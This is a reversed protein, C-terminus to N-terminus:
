SSAIEKPPAPSYGQAAMLNKMAVHPDQDKMYDLLFTRLCEPKPLGRSRLVEALEPAVNLIQVVPGTLEYLTSYMHYLYNQKLYGLHTHGDKFFHRVTRYTRNAIRVLADFEYVFDTFFVLVPQDGYQVGHATKVLHVKAGYELTLQTKIDNFERLMAIREATPLSTNLVPEFKTAKEIATKVTEDDKLAEGVANIADVSDCKLWVDCLAELMIKLVSERVKREKEDPTTELACALSLVQNSLHQYTKIEPVYRMINAHQEPTIHNVPTDKSETLAYRWTFDYRSFSRQRWRRNAIPRSFGHADPEEKRSNTM